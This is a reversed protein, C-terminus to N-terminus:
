QTAELETIRAQLQQIERVSVDLQENAQNIMRRMEAAKRDYEADGQALVPCKDCPGLEIGLVRENVAECMRIYIDESAIDWFMRGLCGSIATRQDGDPVAECYEDVTMPFVSEPYPNKPWWEPKM